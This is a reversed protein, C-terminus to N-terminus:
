RNNDIEQITTGVRIYMYTAIRRINTGDIDALLIEDTKPCIKM